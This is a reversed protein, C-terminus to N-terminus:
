GCTLCLTLPSFPSQIDLGGVHILALLKIKGLTVHLLTMPAESLLLSLRLKASLIGGKGVLDPKM